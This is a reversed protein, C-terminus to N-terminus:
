HLRNNIYFEQLWKANDTIDFGKEKVLEPYENRKDSSNQHNSKIYEFITEAWNQATNSLSIYTILNTIETEVPLTDSAFVPLGNSQAEIAVIGLGEYLSPLLFVDMASMLSPIDSQTGLFKVHNSLGVKSVYSKIVKEKPGTGVLLLISNSKVKLLEKFIDVIFIHNKPDVFRGVHGVVCKENINYSERINNNVNRNYRFKDTDIGNKFIKCDKLSSEKKYLYKAADMSCAFSETANGPIKAISYKRLLKRLLTHKPNSVHSHSIRITINAKRAQELVIGNLGNLHAHIISCDKNAKKFCNYLNRKYKFFGSNSMSPIRYINGGLKKIEKDFKGEKYDHCVFDFQIKRTDIERYLEMLMNEVGGFNMNGVVHLIRLM